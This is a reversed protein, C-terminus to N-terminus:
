SLREQGLRCCVCAECFVVGDILQLVRSYFLILTSSPFRRLLFIIQKSIACRVFRLYGRKVGCLCAPCLVISACNVSQLCNVCRVRSFTSMFISNCLEFSGTISYWLRTVLCLPCHCTHLSLCSIYFM